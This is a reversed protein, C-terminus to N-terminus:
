IIPIGTYSLSTYIVNSRSQLPLGQMRKSTFGINGNLLEVIVKVQLLGFDTARNRAFARANRARYINTFINKQEKEPIGIGTDSVKITAKSKSATLSVEVNGGRNTYKCANSMLNDLMLELLHRDASIVVQEDPVNLM